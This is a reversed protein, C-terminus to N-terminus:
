DAGTWREVLRYLDELHFPKALRDDVAMQAAASCLRAVASMAVLPIHATAPDERLRRSVEVGDMGPMMLDLLILAPQRERAIELATGDVATYVRYGVDELADRVVDLIVDDDDVVLVAPGSPAAAPPQHNASM